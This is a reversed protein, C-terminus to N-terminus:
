SGDEDKTWSVGEPGYMTETWGEDSLMYDFMEMIREPHEATASISWLGWFGISFSGGFYNDNETSEVIGPIFVIDYDPNIEKCQAVFDTIHGPFFTKMGTIGTRVREDYASTNNITPWDPDVIGEEWMDHTWQLARKYNDHTRSYMLDMYEGDYEQWGNLSFTWAFLPSMNGDTAYASIGYTNDKGDGDPDDFTFARMIEEFEDLTIYEGEVVEMGLNDLWDKRLGYGDARAISTRPVGYINDDGLVKLTEWSVDYSYAMLNPCDELYDNLPIFLGSKVADVFVKDTHNEFLVVDPYEASAIMLQLSENYASSAPIQLEIDLNFRKELNEFFIRDAESEDAGSTSSFNAMLTIAYPEEAEDAVAAIPLMTALMALAVLVLVLKKM